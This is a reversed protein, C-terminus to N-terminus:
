RELTISAWAIELAVSTRVVNSPGGAGGFVAMPLRTSLRFRVPSPKAKRFTALAPSNPSARNWRDDKGGWSISTTAWPPPAVWRNLTSPSGYMATPM